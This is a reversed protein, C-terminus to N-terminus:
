NVLCQGQARGVDMEEEVICQIMQSSRETAYQLGDDPSIYFEYVFSLICKNLCLAMVFETLLITVMSQCLTIVIKVTKSWQEQPHYKKNKNIM